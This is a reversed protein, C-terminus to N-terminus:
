RLEWWYDIPGPNVSYTAGPPIIMTLPNRSGSTAGVNFGSIYLLNSTGNNPTVLVMITRGTNNTYTVGGVRSGIMNQLTQGQGLADVVGLTTKASTQDTDDLLTQIFPSVNGKSYSEIWAGWTGDSARRREYRTAATTDAWSMQVSRGSGLDRQVHIGTFVGLTPMKNSNFTRFFCSFTIADPDAVDAGANGGLGFDAVKLVRGTTTDTSSTTLNASAATGMNALTTGWQNVLQRLRDASEKVYGQMPALGYTGGSVTTGQYAPLISLVTASAINTVEYWRGDPGQFADGVRSNASFNTGTGTVTTSNNTVSVTGTRYWPM